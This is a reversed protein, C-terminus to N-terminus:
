GLELSTVALVGHGSVAPLPGKYMRTTEFGTSFGLSALLEAFAGSTEPVDLHITGSGAVPAFAALLSEADAQDDAFLPGLKLGQRCERMVGLAAIAGARMVVLATHPSTLWHGLFAQRSGPFFRRDFAEAADMLEATVPRIDAEGHRQQFAQLRGSYRVTRYAPAFGMSRYNALQADVGDLGITRGDLRAMGADWVAKGHGKGRMDPRCIYLGVFGYHEGYAVASIGAAMAGDVFVGLFGQPDAAHFADADCLGPNWGEDAAWDVLTKTEALALARIQRDASMGRCCADVRDGPILVNNDGNQDSHLIPVGLKTMM